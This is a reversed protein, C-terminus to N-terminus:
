NKEGKGYNLINNYSVNEVSGQEFLAQKAKTLKDIPVILNKICPLEETLKNLRDPLEGIFITSNKVIGPITPGIYMSQKL